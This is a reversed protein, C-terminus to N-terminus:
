EELQQGFEPVAASHLEAFAGLSVVASAFCLVGETILLVKTSMDDTSGSASFLITSLILLPIALLMLSLVGIIVYVPLMVLSIINALLRIIVTISSRKRLKLDVRDLWDRWVTLIRLSREVRTPMSLLVSLGGSSLLKLDQLSIPRADPNIRLLEASNGTIRAYLQTITNVNHLIVFYTVGMIAGIAIMIHQKSLTIKIFLWTFDIVALDVSYAVILLFCLGYILAIQTDLAKHTNDFAALFKKELEILYEEATKGKSADPM